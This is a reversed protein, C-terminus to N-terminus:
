AAAAQTKALAAILAELCRGDIACGQMTKLIELAKSVPMAARYPRDATLADFIDAVTVIRTDLNIQDGSLGYPYGTGDLREHHGVAVPVMDAFAGIQALIQESYVPHRKITAFEEDTLRGPKDLISNSIGLKGIDHLLSARRLVRRRGQDIGMQEAIMDAFVTVRESHGATYPSKSDVVQAFGEAIDDLYDDDAFRLAHAPELEYIAQQLQDSALAEWFVPGASAREFAAVLSPAFWKGARSRIERCATERGAGVLFVDLVQALLAIQSNAPIDDGRRSEPMGSGDWHEYLNHIGDAVRDGFRMKRAIEAGRQCRTETLEKAMGTGTKMARFIAKFREATGVQLGTHTIIFRLAQPLSGNMLKAGRKFALDDTLYYSCVRAANSSCGLDKLLLTYYLDSLADGALGMERGISTGIWCCRVMHGRPLGQTLDLSHSLASLIEALRIHPSQTGRAVDSM